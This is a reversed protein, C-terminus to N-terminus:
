KKSLIDLLRDIREMKDHHMEKMLDLQRNSQQNISDLIQTTANNSRKVKKPCPESDTDNSIIVQVAHPWM